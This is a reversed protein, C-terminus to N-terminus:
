ISVREHWRRYTLEEYSYLRDKYVTLITMPAVHEPRFRVVVGALSESAWQRMSCPMEIVDIKGCSLRTIM